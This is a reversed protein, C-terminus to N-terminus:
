QPSSTVPIFTYRTDVGEGRRSIKIKTHGEKLLDNVNLAWSLSLTLTKRTGDLTKVAYNVANSKKGKYEREITRALPIGNEMEFQLTITQNPQIKLFESQTQRALSEIQEFINKNQSSQQINSM